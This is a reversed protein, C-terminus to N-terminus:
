EQQVLAYVQHHDLFQEAVGVDGDVGAGVGVDSESELEMSHM